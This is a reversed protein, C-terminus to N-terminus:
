STVKALNIKVLAKEQRSSSDVIAKGTKIM